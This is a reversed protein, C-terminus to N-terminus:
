SYPVCELSPMHERMLEHVRLVPLLVERLGVVDLRECIRAIALRKKTTGYRNM